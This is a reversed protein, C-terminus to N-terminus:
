VGLSDFVEEDRHFIEDTAELHELDVVSEPRGCLYALALRLCQADGQEAKDLLADLLKVFREEGVHERFLRRLQAAGGSGRPRGPNGPCFRGQSDRYDGNKVTRGM